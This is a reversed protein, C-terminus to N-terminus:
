KMAIGEVKNWCHSSASWPQTGRANYLHRAYALNGELTHIDFGLKKSDVLHYFENVQMVGVDKPNKVGRLVNGNADFQNYRSECFAVKSLIPIDKFYEKVTQEVTKPEELAENKISEDVTKASAISDLSAVDISNAGSVSALLM